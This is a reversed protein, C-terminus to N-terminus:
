RQVAKVRFALSRSATIALAVVRRVVVLDVAFGFDVLV